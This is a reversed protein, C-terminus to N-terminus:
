ILGKIKLTVFRYLATLFNVAGYRFSECLIEFLMGCARREIQRFFRRIMYISHNIKFERGVRIQGDYYPQFREVMVSLQGLIKPFYNSREYQV